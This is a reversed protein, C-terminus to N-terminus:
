KIEVKVHSPLNKIKAVEFIWDNSKNKEFGYNLLFMECPKNKQTPIYHAIILEIKEKKAENIIHTMMENEIKRSMIRCSLLFTDITWVIKDKKIIFMGTIGSDGFKDEVQIAKIITNKEQVMREIEQEQYRCTTLNFQNTKLTLQAIRPITFKDVDKIEIKIKLNNLFDDLNTVSKELEIRKRQQLYMEGRKKDESTINLVNFDSMGFIVSAYLAPDNPVDMTLVKPLSQKMFERNVPDDDFFVISDLGINLEKSIEQMNSVKDNWNIKICAFHKERLIMQPHENIVKLAEDLNNKSNIALIIGRQYLSLIVRQFEIFSSGKGNPNLEIGEFGEEGVVGGWLTNDLDLVLCKRNLGIIPKIFGLLEDAFLPLFELSIKIDGAFFQRYDFINKSGYKMVFSNFDYVYTSSKKKVIETLKKNFDRIMDKLGYEMKNEYIGYPSWSPIELQTVIIKSNSFASIKEILNTINQIQNKIFNQREKVTVSYPSFFLDGLISRTDLILFIIDSKFKYLEGKSNLIEQSFQNYGSIYTKCGIDLEACKVKIVEALGNVTFSSLISVRIEKEFKTSDLTKSKNIYDFLKL